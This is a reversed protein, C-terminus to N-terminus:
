KYWIVNQPKDQDYDAHIFNKYVGIRTIGCGILADIIVFRRISSTCHIDIALGKIHSSTPSGGIKLNHEPCSYARNINFPINAIRRAQNLKGLFSNELKGKNCCNCSQEKKSFFNLMGIVGVM